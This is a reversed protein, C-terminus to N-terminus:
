AFIEILWLYRGGNSAIREAGQTLLERSPWYHAKALHSPVAEPRVESVKFGGSLQRQALQPTLLRAEPADAFGIEGRSAGDQAGL